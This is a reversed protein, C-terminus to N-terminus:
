EDGDVDHAAAMKRDRPAPKAVTKKDPPPHRGCQCCAGMARAKPGLLADICAYYPEDEVTAEDLRCNPRRGSMECTKGM